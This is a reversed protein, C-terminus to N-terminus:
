KGELAKIRDIVEQWDPQHELAQRYWDIASENDGRAQYVEGLYYYAYPYESNAAMALRYYEEALDMDKLDYQYVVGIVLLASFNGPQLTLATQYEELALDSGFEYNLTHYIDGRYLHAMIEDDPNIWSGVEIARTFFALANHYDRHDHKATYIQGIRLYMSSRVEAPAIALGENIWDIAAQWEKATELRSSAQLWLGWTEPQNNAQQALIRLAPYPEIGPQNSLNWIVAMLDDSALGLDTLAVAGAQPDTESISVIYQVEANAQGGAEKLRALGAETEGAM